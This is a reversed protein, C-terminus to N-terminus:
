IFLNHNNDKSLHGRYKKKLKSIHRINSITKITYTVIKWALIFILLLYIFNM